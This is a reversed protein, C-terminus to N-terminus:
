PQFGGINGSSAEEGDEFIKWAGEPMDPDEFIPIALLESPIIGFTCATESPYQERLLETVVPHCKLERRSIRPMQSMLECLEGYSLPESM